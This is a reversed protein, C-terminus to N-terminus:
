RYPCRCAQTASGSWDREPVHSVVGVSRPKGERPRV